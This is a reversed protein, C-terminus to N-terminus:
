TYKSGKGWLQMKTHQRFFSVLTAWEISDDVLTLKTAALLVSLSVM